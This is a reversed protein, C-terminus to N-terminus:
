YGTVFSLSVWLTGLVPSPWVPARTNSDRIVDFVIVQDGGVHSLIEGIGSFFGPEVERIIFWPSLRGTLPEGM